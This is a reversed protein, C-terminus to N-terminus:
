ISQFESVLTIVMFTPTTMLLLVLAVTVVESTLLHIADSYPGGGRCTTTASISCWYHTAPTLSSIIAELGTQNVIMEDKSSKSICNITYHTIEGSQEQEPPPSWTFRVSHPDDEVVTHSFNSPTADYAAIHFSMIAMLQDSCM